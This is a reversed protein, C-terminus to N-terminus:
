GACCVIGPDELADALELFAQALRRMQGIEDVLDGQKYDLVLRRTASDQVLGGYNLQGTLNKEAERISGM